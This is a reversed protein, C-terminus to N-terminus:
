HAASGVDIGAAHLNLPTLGQTVDGRARDKKQQGPQKEM